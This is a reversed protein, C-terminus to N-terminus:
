GPDIVLIECALEVVEKTISRLENVRMAREILRFNGGTDRVFGLRALSRLPYRRGLFCCNVVLLFALLTKRSQDRALLVIQARDM